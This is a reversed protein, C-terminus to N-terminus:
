RGASGPPRPAPGPGWSRAAADELLRRREAPPRRPCSLCTAGQPLRDILCCSARATFRTGAVDVYRPAPLPAGVAAALPRALATVAGTDGLARGLTLLGNALSDSAIAWLPRPRMRAAAALAPVVASLCERLGDAPDGGAVASVAAVPLGGRGLFVTTDAPRASLPRGAALGALVPALVVASASYWWVTAHVRAAGARPTRTALLEALWRADALREAPVPLTGPSPVLGFAAAGPIRAVVEAQPATM